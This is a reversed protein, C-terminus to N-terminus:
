RLLQLVSEPIQNAQALMAQASQMLISDKTYEMIEKAMDVDRIRSEAAQLNETSADLNKITHELRNQMAGLLARQHSVRQLANNVTEIATAAGWKSSIDINAVNLAAARMDGMSIFATQGSNAGIQAMVSDKLNSSAPEYRSFIFTLSESVASEYYRAELSVNVDASFQLRRGEHGMTVSGPYYKDSSTIVTGAMLKTGAQPVATNLKTGSSLISDKALSFAKVNNVDGDKDATIDEALTIRGTDIFIKGTATNKDTISTMHTLVTGDDLTISKGPSVVADGVKLMQSSEDYSVTVENGNVMIRIASPSPTDDRMEIISGKALVSTEALSVIDGTDTPDASNTRGTLPVSNGLTVNVSLEGSAVLYNSASVVEVNKRLTESNTDLTSQAALTFSLVTAATFDTGITLSGNDVSVNGGGNNKIVTGDNLRITKGVEITTIIAGGPGDLLQLEGSATYTIAGAGTGTDLEIEVGTLLTFNSGCALISDSTVKSLEHETLADGLVIAAPPTGGPLGNVIPGADPITTVAGGDAIITGEELETAKVKTDDSLAKFNYMTGDPGVLKYDSPSYVPDGDQFTQNTKILMYAGDFVWNKDNNVTTMMAKNKTSDIAIRSNNNLRSTGAVEDAVGKASGELLKRTNFETSNAIRDIEYRLQTVEAQLEARDADTNTDNASQVSLERMRQLIDQTEALAGEATQIMSITDQANRSAMSLGRVQGRMKESIALGAADDGARNIRYGSSLKEMSKAGSNESIGLQRHTNIAILNHNIRM